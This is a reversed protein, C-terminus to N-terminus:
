NFIPINLSCVEQLKEMLKLLDSNLNSLPDQPKEDTSENSELKQIEEFFINLREFSTLYKKRFESLIEDDDNSDDNALRFKVDDILSNFEDLQKPSLLPKSEDRIADHQAGLTKGFPTSDCRLKPTIQTHKSYNATRPAPAIPEAFGKSTLNLLSSTRMMTRNIDTISGFRKIQLAETRTNVTSTPNVMTRDKTSEGLKKDFNDLQQFISEFDDLSIPSCEDSESENQTNLKNLKSEFEALFNQRLLSPDIEVHNRKIANLIDYKQELVQKTLIEIDQKSVISM